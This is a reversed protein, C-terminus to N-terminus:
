LARRSTATRPPSSACMPRGRGARALRNSSAMRFCECCSSSCRRRRIGSKTWSYPAAKPWSSVGRARSAPTKFAGAIHGFLESELLGDPLAGCNVKVFPGDRRLSEAHLAKALLEKGTGTEGLILVTAKTPAVDRILAFIEQMRHHKSVMDQMTYQRHMERRLTEVATLDRFTEVGGIITGQKNRLAATTVSVPVEENKRNLIAFEVGVHDRGTQVSKALFDEEEPFPARFISYCYEGVAEDASFGTIREAARNFSTIIFDLNVTLVGSVISDLITGVEPRELFSHGRPRAMEHDRSAGAATGPDRTTLVRPVGRTDLRYPKPISIAIATTM